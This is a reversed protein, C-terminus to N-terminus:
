GVVEGVRGELHGDAVLFLVLRSVLVGRARNKGGNQHPRWSLPALLAVTGARTTGAGYFDGGCQVFFFYCSLSSPFALSFFARTTDRGSVGLWAEKPPFALLRRLVSV